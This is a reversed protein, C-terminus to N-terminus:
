LNGREPVSPPQGPWDLLTLAPRVVGELLDRQPNARALVRVGLIVGLLLRALDAPDRPPVSGETQAAAVARHFFAEIESLRAAIEAGLEADHPAIELASNVLLCGRREQDDLSREVIEAIFARIAEKPPLRGELRAIRERSSREVYRRLAARFLARKDGFTNYLSPGNIGMEAALDRVSTAEYGGRWFCDMAADLAAAEDFERPRAM